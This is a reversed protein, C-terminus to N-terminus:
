RYRATAKASYGHDIRLAGGNPVIGHTERLAPSPSEEGAMSPHSSRLAVPEENQMSRYLSERLMRLLEPQDTALAVDFATKGRSNRLLPNAESKLLAKATYQQRSRVALHLASEGKFNTLDPAIGAELLTCVFGINDNRVARHFLSDGNNGIREYPDAGYKLLLPVLNNAHHKEALQLMSLNSLDRGNPDAERDLAAKAAELSKWKIADILEYLPLM